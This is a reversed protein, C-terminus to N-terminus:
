PANEAPPVDPVRGDPAPRALGVLLVDLRRSLEVDLAFDGGSAAWAFLVATWMGMLMEAVLEPDLEPRLENSRQGADVFARLVARLRPGADGELRRVAEDDALTERFVAIVFSRRDRVSEALAGYLETVCERFSEARSEAVDALVGHFADHYAEALVAEKSRYYNFFTGKAVDAAATIQEVTTADLGRCAFLDLAAQRIRQRNDAKRRERRSGPPSEVAPDLHGSDNKVM